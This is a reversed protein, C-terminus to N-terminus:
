TAAPGGKTSLRQALAQRDTSERQEAAARIPYDRHTRRTPANAEADDAILQLTTALARLQLPTLEALGGPLGDVVSLPEGRYAQCHTVRLITSM